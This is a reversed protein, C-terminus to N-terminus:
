LLSFALLVLSLFLFLSHLFSGLCFSELAASSGYASIDTPAYSLPSLGRSLKHTLMPLQHVLRAFIPDFLPFHIGLPQCCACRGCPSSRRRRHLKPSLPSADLSFIDGGEDGPLRGIKVRERGTKARLYLEIISGKWQTDRSVEYYLKQLPCHGDGDLTKERMMEGLARNQHRSRVNKRYLYWWIGVTASIEEVHRVGERGM